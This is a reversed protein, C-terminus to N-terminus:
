LLIYDLRVFLLSKKGWKRKNEYSSQNYYIMSQCFDLLSIKPSCPNLNSMPSFEKSSSKIRLRRQGAFGLGLGVVVGIRQTTHMDHKM